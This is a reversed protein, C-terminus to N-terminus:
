RKKPPGRFPRRPPASGGDDRPAGPRPREGRPAPREPRTAPREPRAAPREPREAQDGRAARPPARPPPADDRPRLPRREGHGGDFRPGRRHPPGRRESREPRGRRPRLALSDTLEEPIPLADRRGHMLLAVLNEAGHIALLERALSRDDDDINALADGVRTRLRERDLVQIEAASPLPTWTTNKAGVALLQLEATRQAEPIALVVATGKRGARGTRGNRHTMTVANEAVDGHIVLSVEPLDLGRAAVDTAVLVRARGDRLAQLARTREAQSLEGSLAVAAFGREVLNAQLHTVTERRAVFVLARAPDHFRLVNVVAHGREHGAVLHALVEIDQHATQPPSAVVRAADKQFSRALEVIPKPLTASFFPPRREPHCASLLTELDERFGMDLMEDAEDLVVAQLASLDLSQRTLHDVLRGPTGVVVHVGGYLARRERHVDTGGVCSTVRAQIGSYLWTLEREVQLALERTPAVVLIAPPQHRGPAKLRAQPNEFNLDAAFVDAASLGFAVTKGSGTRSSVLLDRGRHDAQLVAKQVDTPTSFGRSSLERLLAPHLSLASFGTEDVHPM